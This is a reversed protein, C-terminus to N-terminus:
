EDQSMLRLAEVEVEERIKPDGIMHLQAYVVSPNSRAATLFIERITGVAKILEVYYAGEMLAEPEEEAMTLLGRIGLPTNVSDFTEQVMKAKDDAGVENTEDSLSEPKNLTKKM